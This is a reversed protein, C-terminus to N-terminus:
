LLSRAAVGKEYSSLFKIRTALLLLANVNPDEEM